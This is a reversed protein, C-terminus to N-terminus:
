GDNLVTGRGRGAGSKRGIQYAEGAPEQREADLHHQERPQDRDHQVHIGEGDADGLGRQHRWRQEEQRQAPQDGIAAVRAPQRFAAISSGATAIANSTAKTSTRERRHDIRVTSYGQQSRAV